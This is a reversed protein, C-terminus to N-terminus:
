KLEPKLPVDSAKKRAIEELTSELALFREATAPHTSTHGSAINAPSEVAMRRWFYTAGDLDMGSNALVYMGVYDAEAEFDQSYAQGTLEGFYGNTDWGQTRAAIDVVSGLWYNQQRKDIHDMINHALEHAMVLALEKDNDTFRLMRRTIFVSSGDAYANLEDTLVLHIAYDCIAIPEITFELAEEGRQVGLIVSSSNGLDEELLNRFVTGANSGTILPNSNVSTIIDKNRVGATAAPGDSVVGIVTVSAGISLERASRQFDEEFEFGTAVAMGISNIVNSGCLETAGQLIPFSVDQIRSEDALTQELAITRQIFREELVARSDVEARPTVTSACGILLLLAIALLRKFLSLLEM